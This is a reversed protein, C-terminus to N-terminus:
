RSKLARVERLVADGKGGPPAGVAAVITGALEEAGPGAAAVLYRALVSPPSQQVVSHLSAKLEPERELIGLGREVAARQLQRDSTRAAFGLLDDFSAEDKGMAGALPGAIPYRRRTGPMGPANDPTGELDETAEPPPAVTVDTGAGLIEVSAPRGGADYHVLFSQTGLVRRLADPLPAEDLSLTIRDDVLVEGRVVISVESALARLVEGRPAEHARVSIGSATADVRLRGGAAPESSAGAGGSALALLLVLATVV